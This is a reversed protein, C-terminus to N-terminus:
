PFHAGAARADPKRPKRRLLARAKFQKINERLPALVLRGEKAGPITCGPDARVEATLQGQADLFAFLPAEKLPACQPGTQCLSATGVLVSGELAARVFVQGDKFGCPRGFESRGTFTGDPEKQWRVLGLEGWVSVAPLALPAAGTERACLLAAGVLAPLIARIKPSL